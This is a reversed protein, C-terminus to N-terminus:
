EAPRHQPREAEADARWRAEDRLHLLFVVLAGALVVAPFFLLNAWNALDMM